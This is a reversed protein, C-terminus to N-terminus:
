RRVEKLVIAGRPCEEVCLGCGKCYRDQIGYLKEPLTERIVAMDPCYYYCNDCKLCHGCSFCRHAQARAEEETLAVRAERFDQLRKVPDAAKREVRAAVPFYFTNIEKFSVEDPVPEGGCNGGRGELYREIGLVARKGGGIAASVFRDTSAADGCAFIGAGSTAQCHDVEIVRNEGQRVPFGDLDPDQGVALIVTDASVQFSVGPIVIPKLVGPPASPDLVVKDCTLNLIGGEEAAERVMVGGRIIVGEELAEQVEQAQAPLNHGDELALVKVQSGLRRATRAVDMAVSGGGIVAVQRGIAPIDNRNVRGLFDLGSIVRGGAPNFQPLVKARPAGTALCLAAFEKRLSDLDEGRVVTGTRLEIGTALLRNVEGAVIEKPLRYAPIGYRMVGGPEPQAEFVTVRYGRRRLQYACSLGAPGSGIVAVRADKNNEPGPLPWGEKLALDGVFQELANVTVAGDYEGRNCSVECPHHCVRGTVAPFPNNAVLTLWASHYQGERVQQIWLPINGGAPCANKCPSPREEHVPTASRWTGTSLEETWGTTWVPPIEKAVACM